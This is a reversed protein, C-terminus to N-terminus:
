VTIIGSDQGNYGGLGEEWENSVEQKVNLPKLFIGNLIRYLGNLAYRWVPTDSVTGDFCLTVNLVSLLSCVLYPSNWIVAFIGDNMGDNPAKYKSKYM